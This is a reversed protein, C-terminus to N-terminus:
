FQRPPGAEALLKIAPPWWGDRQEGGNGPCGKRERKRGRREIERPNRRHDRDRRLTLPLPAGEKNSRM